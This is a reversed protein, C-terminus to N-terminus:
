KCIHLSTYTDKQLIAMTKKRDTLYLDSSRYHLIAPVGDDVVGNKYSILSYYVLLITVGWFKSRTKYILSKWKDLNVRKINHTKVGLPFKGFINNSKYVREIFCNKILPNLQLTQKKKLKVRKFHDKM